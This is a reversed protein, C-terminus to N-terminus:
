ASSTAADTQRAANARAPSSFGSLGAASPGGRVSASPSGSGGATTARGPVAVGDRQLICFTPRGEPWLVEVRFGLTRTYFAITRELDAVPVRPTVGLLRPV